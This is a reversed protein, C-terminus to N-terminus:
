FLEHMQWGIIMWTIVFGAACVASARKTLAAAILWPVLLLTQFLFSIYSMHTFLSLAPGSFCSLLRGPSGIKFAGRVEQFLLVGAGVLVAYGCLVFIIRRSRSTTM